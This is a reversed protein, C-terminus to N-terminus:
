LNLHEASLDAFYYKYTNKGAQKAQYMAIDANKMLTEVSNGDSPFMAIGASISTTFEHGAIFYTTGILQVMKKAVIGVDHSTKPAIIVCVFEDGGLRAVFDEYRVVGSLRKAVEILLMDGVSHGFTDNVFKFNDLDFSLLAFFYNHRKSKAIEISLNEEFALRNPINTLLDIKALHELEENAKIRELTSVVIESYTTLLITDEEEWHSVKAISGFEAFGVVRNQFILPSFVLSKYEEKKFALKEKKWEHGLSDVDLLCFVNQRMITNRFSAYDKLSFDVFLDKQVVYGDTCWEYTCNMVSVDDNFIFIRATHFNIYEAIEKLSNRIEKKIEELTACSFSKAIKAIIKEFGSRRFLINEMEKRATVDHFTSNLLKKDGIQMISNSILVYKVKRGKLIMKYEASVESIFKSSNETNDEEIFFVKDFDEGQMEFNFVQSTKGIIDDKNLELLETGAKNCDYITKTAFDILFIADKSNEFQKRYREESRRLEEELEKRKFFKPIEYKKGKLYPVNTVYKEIYGEIKSPHGMIFRCCEDGKAKCMIESSVLPMGFSEECWGSSYGANM